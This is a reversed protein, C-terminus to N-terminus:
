LPFELRLLGRVNGQRDHSFFRIWYDLNEEGYVVFAECGFENKTFFRDQSYSLSLAVFGDSEIAGDIPILLMDIDGPEPKSTVFSGDIVAYDVFGSANWIHVFRDLGDILRSRHPTFGLASRIEQISTDHLGQPLFGRNDFQPIM